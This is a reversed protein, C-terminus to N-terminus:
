AAERGAGSLKRLVAEAMRTLAEPPRTALVGADVARALPRQVPLEGLVPLQLVATVDRAALARGAESVLVVGTAGATLDHIVARHLALYCPRLVVLSCRAAEVVARQVPSRASGADVVCPIGGDALAAALATGAPAPAADLSAESGMPLLALGPAAETALRSLAEPPAEPGATLWDALGTSPGHTLGLAAPQDGALDALRAGGRRALALALGAAVLTTGSGGKPSWTAILM